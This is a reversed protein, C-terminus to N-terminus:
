ANELKVDCLRYGQGWVTEIINGLDPHLGNLRKRIKCVFVDVIKIEPADADIMYLCNLLQEKNRIQGFCLALEMFLQTEKGTLHPKVGNFAVTRSLTNVVFQRNCLYILPRATEFRRMLAHICAIMERPNVPACLLYDGGQEIFTAKRESWTADNFVDETIGIIPVQTETERILRSSYVGEAKDIDVVVCTYYNSDHWDHLLKESPVIEVGYMDSLFGLHDSNTIVRM